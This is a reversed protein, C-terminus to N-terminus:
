LWTTQHLLTQLPLQAPVILHEVLHTTMTLPIYGSSLEGGGGGEEEM